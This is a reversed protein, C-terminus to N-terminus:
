NLDLSGGDYMTGDYQAGAANIGFAFGSNLDSYTDMFLVFNDNKLFSWDRKLSEVMNEGNGLKKCTAFLYLNNQDYTMRVETPVNAISTDMPLVMAFKEAVQANKWSQETLQGDIKISDTAKHIYYKIGANKKQAVIKQSM